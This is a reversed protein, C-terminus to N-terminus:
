FGRAELERVIPWDAGAWDLEKMKETELWVVNIHEKLNVCDSKMPCIFTHMRIEFDKYRHEVVCYKKMEGIKIDIDMEEILERHLAQRPSEEGEIKGGPFEYKYSIYDYAGKDRQACLVKNDYVLIAGAVELHKM